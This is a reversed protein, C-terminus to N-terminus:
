NYRYPFYQGNQRRRKPEPSPNHIRHNRLISETGENTGWLSYQLADNGGHDVDDVNAGQSLLFSVLQASRSFAAVMLPTIGQVNKHHLNAGSKILFSLFSETVLEIAGVARHLLTVGREADASNIDVGAKILSRIAKVPDLANCSLVLAHYSLQTSITAGLALMPGVSSVLQMDNCMRSMASEGDGNVFNINAKHTLVLYKIVSFNGTAAVCEDADIPAGYTIFVKLLPLHGLESARRTFASSSKIYGRDRHQRLVIKMLKAGCACTFTRLVKPLDVEKLPVGRALMFKLAPVAGGDLLLRELLSGRASNQRLSSGREVIIDVAGLQCKELERYLIVEDEYQRDDLAALMTACVPVLGRDACVKLCDQLELKSVNDRFQDVSFKGLFKGIQYNSELTIRIITYSSLGDTIRFRNYASAHRYMFLGRRVVDLVRFSVSLESSLSARGERCSARLRSYSKPDDNYDWVIELVEEPLRFLSM